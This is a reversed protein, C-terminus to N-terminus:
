DKMTLRNKKKIELAEEQNEFHGALIRLWEGKDGLDVKVIYPTLGLKRHKSVVVDASKRLKCSALMITYPRLAAKAVSATAVTTPTIVTVPQKKVEPAIGTKEDTMAAKPTPTGQVELKAATEEPAVADERALPEPKDVQKSVRIEPEPAPIEPKQGAPAVTKIDVHVSPEPKPAIREAPVMIKKRIVVPATRKTIDAVANKKSIPEQSQEAPRILYQLDTIKWIGALVVLLVIVLGILVVAKKNGTFGSIM